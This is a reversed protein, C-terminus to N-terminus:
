DDFIDAIGGFDDGERAFVEMFGYIINVVLLLGTGSGVTGLLDSLFGLLAICVGGIVTATPIYRNLVSIMATDRDHKAIVMKSDQLQRLVDLPSRGSLELWMKSLMACSVVIFVLYVLFHLPDRAADRLSDPPVLYYSLGGVLQERGHQDTRWTGLLRVLQFKRFKRFLVNSVVHLNSIVATQIIIPTNSLYFLKVPYSGVAGRVTRNALPLSVQFGQFYIMVLFVLATVLINHVNTLHPRFFALRLAHLKDSKTLLFHVLAILAGEFEIGNETKLTIPSFAKWLVNECINTAIFLSIGAGVGHGKQLMEDLYLVMVAAGTLQLVLLTARLAGITELRGYMGTYVYGFATAFSVIISLLKEAAELLRKDGEVSRDFSILKSNALLEVIMNSTILPTIGLEMLTGRNSALIVRMWYLPDAGSTKYIGFLPLQCCILYIFLTIGTWLLRERFSARGEPERVEPVFRLVPRLTYLFTEGM